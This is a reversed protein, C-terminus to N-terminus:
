NMTSAISMTIADMTDLLEMDMRPRQLLGCFTDM